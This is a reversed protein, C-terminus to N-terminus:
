VIGAAVAQEWQILRAADAKTLRKARTGFAFLEAGLRARQERNEEDPGLRSLCCKLAHEYAQHRTAAIGGYNIVEAFLETVLNKRKM